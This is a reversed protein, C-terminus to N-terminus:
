INSDQEVQGAIPIILNLLFGSFFGLMIWCLFFGVCKQDITLPETVPQEQGHFFLVVQNMTMSHLSSSNLKERWEEPMGKYFAHKLELDTLPEGDGPLLEVAENLKLLRDYFALVSQGPSKVLHQLEHLLVVRNQESSYSTLFKMLLEDFHQITDDTLTTETELQNWEKKLTKSLTQSFVNFCASAYLDESPLEVEIISRVEM